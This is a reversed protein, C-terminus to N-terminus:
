LVVGVAAPRLLRDRILWGQKQCEAVTGSEKGPIPAQYMAEHRNPDFKEGTPDFPEVGYRKLTKELEAKTLSVGTYLSVLDANTERDTRKAEPVSALALALVDLNSILDRAFSQIAFDKALAKERTTIKQLNEYDAMNRLLADQQRWRAPLYLDNTRDPAM